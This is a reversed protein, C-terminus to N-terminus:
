SQEKQRPGSISDMMNSKITMYHPTNAAERIAIMIFVWTRKRANTARMDWTDLNELKDVVAARSETVSLGLILQTCGAVWIWTRNVRTDCHVIGIHCWLALPIKQRGLGPFKRSFSYYILMSCLWLSSLAHTLSCVGSSCNLVNCHLNCPTESPKDKAHKGKTQGGKCQQRQMGPRRLAMDNLRAGKWM